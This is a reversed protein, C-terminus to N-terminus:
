KKKKKELIKFARDESDQHNKKYLLDFGIYIFYFIQFVAVVVLLYKIWPYEEILSFLV